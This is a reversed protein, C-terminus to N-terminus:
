KEKINFDNDEFLNISDIAVSRSLSMLEDKLSSFAVQEDQKFYCEFTMFKYKNYFTNVPNCDFDFVFKRSYKKEQGFTSKISKKILTKINDIPETYDDEFTPKVWGRCIFYVVQPNDKNLTGIKLELKNNVITKFEKSIRKM